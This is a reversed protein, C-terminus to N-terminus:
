KSVVGNSKPIATAIENADKLWDARLQVNEAALKCIDDENAM